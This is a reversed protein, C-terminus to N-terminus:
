NSEQSALSRPESSISKTPQSRKLSTFNIALGRGQGRGRVKTKEGCSPPPPNRRFTRNGSSEHARRPNTRREKEWLSLILTLSQQPFPRREAFREILVPYRM